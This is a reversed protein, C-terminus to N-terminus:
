HLPNNICENRVSYLFSQLVYNRGQPLHFKSASVYLFETMIYLLPYIRYLSLYVASHACMPTGSLNIQPTLLVKLCLCQTASYLCICIVSKLLTVYIKIFWYHNSVYIQTLWYHSLIIFDPYWIKSHIITSGYLILVWIKQGLSESSFFFDKM